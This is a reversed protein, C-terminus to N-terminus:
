GSILALGALTKMDVIEGSTMMAAVEARSFPRPELDEDEDQHAAEDEATPTRLGTAKFFHMIEDCFGPSPYFAGVHEIRSPILGIEEHCERIAAHEIDEGRKLTGAPLEWVWRGIPHRYQRVLLLDGSDTVPILVVSGPHRVIEAALEGGNPLTITEVQVTFIRGQFVKRIERPIIPKDM